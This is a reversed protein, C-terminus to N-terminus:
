DVSLKAEKNELMFEFRSMTEIQAFSLELQKLVSSDVSKKSFGFYIPHHELIVVRAEIQTFKDLIEKLDRGYVSSFLFGSIRQRELMKTLQAFNNVSVVKRRFAENNEHLQVFEDSYHLGRQVAFPMSLLSIDTLSKIKPAIDKTTFFVLREYTMPGIYDIYKAREETLSLHMMIDVSGRRLHALGRIFPLSQTSYQCNLPKLLQKLMDISFGVWQGNKQYFSPPYDNPPVRLVLHCGHAFPM